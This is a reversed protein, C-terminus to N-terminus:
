EHQRVLRIRSNLHGCCGLDNNMDDVAIFLVNPKDGGASVTGARAHSAGLLGWGVALSGARLSQRRSLRTRQTM